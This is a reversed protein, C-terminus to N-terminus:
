HDHWLSINEGGRYEYKILEGNAHALISCRCSIFDVNM